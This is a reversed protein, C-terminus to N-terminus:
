SKALYDKVLAFIAKEASASIGKPLQILVHEGRQKRVVQNAQEAEKAEPKLAKGAMRVLSDADLNSAHKISAVFQQTKYAKILLRAQRFTVSSPNRVKAWMGAPAQLVLNIAVTMNGQDAGLSEALENVSAYRGLMAAYTRGQSYVSKSTRARNETEHIRDAHREDDVRRLSVLARKAGTRRLAEARRYGALIEYQFAQGPVHVERVDIPQQNGGQAEIDAVLEAFEPTDYESVDREFGPRVILDEVPVYITKKIPLSRVEAELIDTPGGVQRKVIDPLVGRKSLDESRREAEALQREMEAEREARTKGTKTSM